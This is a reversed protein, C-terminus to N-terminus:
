VHPLTAILHLSRAAFCTSKLESELRPIFGELECDKLAAIVDQPLITKKGAAQAIENSSFTDAYDM